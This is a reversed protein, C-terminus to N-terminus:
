LYGAAVLLEEYAVGYAGALRRLVDVGPRRVEGRELRQLHSVALGAAEAAERFSLERALRASRLVGGLRQEVGAGRAASDM